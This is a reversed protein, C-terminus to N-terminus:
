NGQAYERHDAQIKQGIDHQSFEFSREMLEANYEGHLRIFLKVLEVSKSLLSEMEKESVSDKHEKFHSLGNFFGQNSRYEGSDVFLNESTLEGLELAM